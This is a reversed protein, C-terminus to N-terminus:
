CCLLTPHDPSSCAMHGHEGSTLGKCMSSATGNSWGPWNEVDASQYWYEPTLSKYAQDLQAQYQYKLTCVGYPLMHSLGEADQGCGSALGCCGSPNGCWVQLSHMICSASHLM